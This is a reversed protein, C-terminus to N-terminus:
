LHYSIIEDYGFLKPFEIAKEIANHRIPQEPIHEIKVDDIVIPYCSVGSFELGVNDDPSTMRKLKEQQVELAEAMLWLAEIDDIIRRTLFSKAEDFSDFIFHTDSEKKMKVECFEGDYVIYQPTDRKSEVEKINFEGKEM